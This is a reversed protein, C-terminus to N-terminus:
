AHLTAGHFQQAALKKSGNGGRTGGCVLLERSQVEEEVGVNCLRQLYHVLAADPAKDAGARPAAHELHLPLACLGVDDKWSVVARALHTSRPTRLAAPQTFHAAATATTGGGAHPLPLRPTGAARKNSHGQVVQSM